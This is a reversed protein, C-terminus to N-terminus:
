VRYPFPYSLYEPYYVIRYQSNKESLSSDINIEILFNKTNPRGLNGGVFIGFSLNFKLWIKCSKLFTELILWYLSASMKDLKMNTQVPRGNRQGNQQTLQM